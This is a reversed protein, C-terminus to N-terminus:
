PLSMRLVQFSTGAESQEKAPGRPSQRLVDTLVSAPLLPARAGVFLEGTDVKQVHLAM